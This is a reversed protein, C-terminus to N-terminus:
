TDFEKMVEAIKQLYEDEEIKVRKANKQITEESLVESKIFKLSGAAKQTKLVIQRYKPGVSLLKLAEEDSLFGSTMIGMTNYITDNAIPGIVLDKGAHIDPMSRRNSFVYRFWDADRDFELIDLGEEDLEYFNIFIQTGPKQRAWGGAFEYDATVYFGQGFDANVRGRHIDPKPIEFYGAHYVKIM